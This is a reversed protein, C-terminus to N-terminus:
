TVFQLIVHKPHDISYMKKEDTITATTNNQIMQSNAFLFPFGLATRSDIIVGGIFLWIELENVVGNLLRM